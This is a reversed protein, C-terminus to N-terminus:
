AVATTIANQIQTNLSTKIENPTRSLQNSIEETILRTTEITIESNRRSNNLLSKFDEGTVNSNRQPRRSESDFNLENENKITERM